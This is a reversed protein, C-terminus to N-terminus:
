RVKVFTDSVEQHDALGLIYINFTQRDTSKISGDEKFAFSSKNPFLLRKFLYVCVYIYIYVFVCLYVYIVYYIYLTAYFKALWSCCFTEWPLLCTECLCLGQEDEELQWCKKRSIKEREREREIENIQDGSWVGSESREEREREGM